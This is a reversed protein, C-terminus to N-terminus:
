RYKKYCLKVVEPKNHYLVKVGVKETTLIGKAVLVRLKQYVGSYSQGVLANINYADRKGKSLREIAYVIDCDGKTVEIMKEKV